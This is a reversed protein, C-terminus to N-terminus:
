QVEDRAVQPRENMAGLRAVLQGFQSEGLRQCHCVPFREVEGDRGPTLACTRRRASVPGATGSAPFVEDRALGVV